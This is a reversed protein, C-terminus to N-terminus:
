ICRDLYPELVLRANALLIALGANPCPFACARAQWSILSVFGGIQETGDARLPACTSREHQRKDVCLGHLHMEILDAFVNYALGM